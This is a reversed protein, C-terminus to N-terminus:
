DGAQQHVAGHRTVPSRRAGVEHLRTPLTMRVATGGLESSDVWIRGGLRLVVARCSALGLGDGGVGGDEHVRVGWRFVDERQTSPIGPGNDEITLVVEGDEHSSSIRLRPSSVATAYKVANSVLNEIVRRVMPRSTWVRPLQGLEVRMGNRRLEDHFYELTETVLERLDVPERVIEFAPDAATGMMGNVISSVRQVAANLRDMLRADEDDLRDDFKMELATAMGTITTLPQKLDHVTEFTAREIADRERELRSVEGALHETRRSREAAYRVARALADDNARRLDIVDDAGARLLAMAETDDADGVLALVAPTPRMNAFAAVQDLATPDPLDVLVVDHDRWAFALQGEEVSTVAVVECWGASSSNLARRISAAVIPDQVVLLVTASALQGGVM